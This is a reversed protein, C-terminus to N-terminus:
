KGEEMETCMGYSVNPPNTIDYDSLTKALAGRDVSDCAEVLDIFIMILDEKKERASQIINRLLWIAMLTSRGKRFRFQWKDTEKYTETDSREKLIKRLLKGEVALICLSRYNDPDLRESNKFLNVVNANTYRQPIQEKEWLATFFIKLVPSLEIELLKLLHPKLGSKGPAKGNNMERIGCKIEPFVQLYGSM